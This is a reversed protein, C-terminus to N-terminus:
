LQYGTVYGFCEGDVLEWDGSITKAGTDIHLEFNVVADDSFATGFVQDSEVYGDIEFVGVAQNDFVKGKYIILDIQGPNECDGELVYPEVVYHGDTGPAPQKSTTHGSGCAFLGLTLSLLVIKTKM